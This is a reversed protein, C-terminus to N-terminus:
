SACCVAAWRLRALLYTVLVEAGRNMNIGDESIGDHVYGDDGLLSEHRVNNGEYWRLWSEAADRYRSERAVRWAELCALVMAAADVPQQDYLPKVSGRQYWGRNGIPAPVGEHTTEKLLFDLSELAVGRAEPARPDGVAELLAVSRLLALPIKANSYHLSDEFWAWNDGRHSRFRDLLDQVLKGVLPQPFSEHPETAVASLGLLLFANTRPSSTVALRPESKRLLEQARAQQEPTIGSAVTEGLAWTTRGFSDDSGMADAPTGQESVFNHFRGNSLQYTALFRLYIEALDRLTRQDDDAPANLSPFLRAAHNAVILARAVDDISYGLATDPVDGRTHQWIGRDTTLRRLYRLNPAACLDLLPPM